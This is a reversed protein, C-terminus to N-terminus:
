ANHLRIGVKDVSQIYEMKKSFLKLGEFGCTGKNKWLRSSEERKKSNICSFKMLSLATLLSVNPSVDGIASGAAGTAEFTEGKAECLLSLRCCPLCLMAEQLLEMLKPADPQLTKMIDRLNGIAPDKIQSAGIDEGSLVMIIFRSLPYMLKSDKHKIGDYLEFNYNELTTSSRSSLSTYYCTCYLLLGACIAGLLVGLSSMAIITVLIPDLTYLWSKETDVLPTLPSNTSLTTHNRDLNIADDESNEGFDEGHISVEDELAPFDMAVQLYAGEQTMESKHSNQTLRCSLISIQSTCDKIKVHSDVPAEWVFVVASFQYVPTLAQEIFLEAATATQFALPTGPICALIKFMGSVVPPPRVQESTIESSVTEECRKQCSARSGHSLQAVCAPAKQSGSVEASLPTSCLENM